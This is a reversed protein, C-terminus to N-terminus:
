KSYPNLSALEGLTLPKIPMRINYYGVDPIAKGQAEALLASVTTGCQRGQCAGMGSRCFAKTQNPGSCGLEVLGRIEGATIEECRCVVTEDAPRIFTETPRYLADLFPRIALQQHLQSELQKRQSVPMSLKDMARAAADAVLQGQLEAVVAGGIGSSDGAVFIDPHSSMGTESLKPKWCLQVEDWIHELGIARGLQTNPIVGQHSLLTRCPILKEEGRHKIVVAGLNGAHDPKAHVESVGSYMPVKYRRIEALMKAGKLLYRWGRLAGAIEPLAAMYNKSPTTDVLADIEVGARLLQCAILLFLPGSGVIVLPGNPVMSSTKLLIQAAGCTMVGPLTWGPFPAPREQAGTALLLKHFGVRRSEGAVSFCLTNDDRVEWVTAGQLQEVSARDLMTLLREGSYYDPGLISRDSIPTHGINRYIQGGPRIQEDLVLTKLGQQSATAAAAMGAPGAGVVVLDFREIASM